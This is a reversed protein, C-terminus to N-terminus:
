HGKKLIRRAWKEAFKGWRSLRKETTWTFEWEYCEDGEAICHLDKVVAEPYHHVMQPVTAIGIKVANCWIKGCAKRYPGFHQLARDTLTMRMVASHDNIQLTDLKYSNKNYHQVWYAAMKYIQQVSFPRMLTQIIPSILNRRGMNFQFEADGSLDVCFEVLYAVFENSYGTWPNKLFETTVHYAHDPIRENLRTVLEQVVRNGADQGHVGTIAEELYEVNARVSVGSLDRISEGSPEKGFPRFLM